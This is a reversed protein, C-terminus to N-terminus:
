VPLHVPSVKYKKRAERKAKRRGRSKVNGVDRLAVKYVIYSM